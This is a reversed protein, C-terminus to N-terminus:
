SKHKNKFEIVEKETKLKNGQSVLYGAKQPTEVKGFRSGNHLLIYEKFEKKYSFDNSPESTEKEDVVKDISKNLNGIENFFDEMHNGKIVDVKAIQHAKDGIKSFVDKLQQQENVTSM